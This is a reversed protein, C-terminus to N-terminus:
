AGKKCCDRPQGQPAVTQGAELRASVTVIAGKLEVQALGGPIATIENRMEPTAVQAPILGYESAWVSVTYPAKLGNHRDHCRRLTKGDFALVPRDERRPKRLV